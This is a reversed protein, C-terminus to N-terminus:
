WTGPIAWVHVHTADGHRVSVCTGRGRAEWPRQRGPGSALLLARAISRDDGPITHGAMKRPTKILQCARMRPSCGGRRGVTHRKRQRDM